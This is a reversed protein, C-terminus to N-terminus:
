LVTLWDSVPARAAHRDSPAAEESPYGIPLLQFPRIHEPLSFAESVKKPDFYGVWVSGLGADAAALMLHTTVIAADTETRDEGGFPQKWGVNTDGCILFVYPADYACHTIARIASLAEESQLLYVRQPQLNNASPYLRAVELIHDLVEKPIPKQSFSRVSYRERALDAFSM